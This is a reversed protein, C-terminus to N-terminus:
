RCLQLISQCAHSSSHLNFVAAANPSGAGGVLAGLGGGGGHGDGHLGRHLEAVHVLLVHM